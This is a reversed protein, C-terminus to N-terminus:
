RHPLGVEQVAREISQRSRILETSLIEPDGSRIAVDDEIRIGGFGLAKEAMEFNVMESYRQRLEPHSLIAPVFYLGPEITVVMGPKLDRDLRLYRLGFQESRGRGPAYGARDGYCELDHVDLGLLHGIGHPFFIAHAGREVLEDLQGKLLGIEVLGEALVRCARLHVDRYRVGPRCQEIAALQSAHVLDYLDKQLPDFRGSVPMTRTLDSAYGSPVECGADILLLQGAQLKGTTERCHLIDGRVTVISSYAEVAGAQDFVARIQAAVEQETRGPACVKMAERHARTSIQVARRIEALEHQDKILRQEIVETLLRESGGGSFSDSEGYVLHRGTWDRLEVLATPDAVPLTHLVRGSRRMEDIRTSAESRPSVVDAGYKQELEEFSPEPGHWLAHDEDPQPLFLEYRGPELVAVAGPLSCGTFYLFTSDQRFPLLNDPSNRPLERHGMLVIPEEVSSVLRKRREAHCQAPLM